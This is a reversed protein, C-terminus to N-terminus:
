EREGETDGRVPWVGVVGSTLGDSSWRSVQGCCEERDEYWQIYACTCTDLSSHPM